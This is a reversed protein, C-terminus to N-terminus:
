FPKPIPSRSEDKTLAYDKENAVYRNASAQDVLQWARNGPYYEPNDSSQYSRECIEPARFAPPTFVFRANGPHKPALMLCFRVLVSLLQLRSNVQVAKGQPTATFLLHPLAKSRVSETQFFGHHGLRWYHDGAGLCHRSRGHHFVIPRHMPNCAEQGTDRFP